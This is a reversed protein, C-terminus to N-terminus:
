LALYIALFTSSVLLLTLPAYWGDRGLASSETAFSVPDLALVCYVATAAWLRRTTVWVCAATCLAALLLTLQEATKVGISVKHAVAILAPYSPGKALTLMDFPGLWQGHILYDAQRIFLMDDFSSRHPVLPVGHRLRLSVFSVLLATAACGIGRRRTWLAARFETWTFRFRSRALASRVSMM